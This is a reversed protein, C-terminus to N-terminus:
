EHDMQEKIKQWCEECVTAYIFDLKHRTDYNIVKHCIDCQVRIM